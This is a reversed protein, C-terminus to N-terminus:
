GSAYVGPELVAGEGAKRRFAGRAADVCGNRRRVDSDGNAIGEDSIGIVGDYQELGPQWRSIM